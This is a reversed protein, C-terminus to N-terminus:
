PRGLWAAGASACLVFASRFLCRGRVARADKPSDVAAKVPLRQTFFQVRAAEFHTINAVEGPACPPLSAHICLVHGAAPRNSARDTM